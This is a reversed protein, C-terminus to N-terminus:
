GRSRPIRGPRRPAMGPGPVWSELLAPVDCFVSDLDAAYLRPAPVATDALLGLALAEHAPVYWPDRALRGADHYRRLVLRRTSGGGMMVNVVHKSTGSVSLVEICTVRAAPGMTREIWAVITGAKPNERISPWTV